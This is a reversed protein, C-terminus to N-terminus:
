EILLNTVFIDHLGVYICRDFGSYMSCYFDFCCLRNITVYMLYGFKTNVM